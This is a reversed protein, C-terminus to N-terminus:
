FDSTKVGKNDILLSQPGLTESSTGDTLLSNFPVNNLSLKDFGKPVRNQFM